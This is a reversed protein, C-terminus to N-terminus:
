LLPKRARLWFRIKTLRVPEGRAPGRQHLEWLADRYRDVSFDPPVDWPVLRLYAVLAAVDVFEYWGRDEGDDVVELGAETLRHTFERLTVEPNDPVKGTLEHLEGLELGGVQQTVFVGGPVLVRAVEAADFSEHRNLVLDFRQDPFPMVEDQDPDYGVVTIGYPELAARAVPLNPPWGETAVTDTPLLSAFGSLLEGGGTGMDLVHRSLRLVDRWIKDPSWPLPTEVMRGHLASFDWGPPQGGEEARWRALLAGEEQVADNRLPDNRVADDPPRNDGPLSM